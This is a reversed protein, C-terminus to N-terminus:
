KEELILLLDQKGINQRCKYKTIIRVGSSTVEFDAKKELIEANKLESEELKLLEAEAKQVAAEESLTINVTEYKLFETETLKIPLYMEYKEFRRCVTETEYPGEVTGLYLPINLGFFTLVRRKIPRGVYRKETQEFPVFCELERETQAIVEGESAGFSYTGDKYETIGSVLLDGKRVTQGVATKITGETVEIATIVGDFGAVLNSPAKPPLRDPESESINVTARVGEINVSAWAINDFELALRTRFLEQDIDSRRVGEYLGLRECAALIDKESITVNGVVRVNWVFSSLFFLAAFYLVLGAAFGVRLRHKKIFFPLGFRALVRTKVRNKAKVSHFKLYDKVLVKAELGSRTRRIDWASINSQALQTLFREPFEGKVSFRVYGLFYRLFKILM